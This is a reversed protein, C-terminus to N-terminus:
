STIPRNGKIVSCDYDSKFPRNWPRFLLMNLRVTHAFFLQGGEKSPPRRLLLPLSHLGYLPFPLSHMSDKGPIPPHSSVGGPLPKPHTAHVTIPLSLVFCVHALFLLLINGLDCSFTFFSGGFGEGGPDRSSAGWGTPYSRYRHLLLLPRPPEALLAPVLEWTELM